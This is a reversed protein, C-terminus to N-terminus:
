EFGPPPSSVLVATALLVLVAVLLELRVSRRLPAVVGSERLAPGGRRWNWAGIGALFAVAVMKADLVLGYRSQWLAAWSGLHLWAGFLGSLVVLPAAILATRSFASVLNAAEPSGADHRIALSLGSALTMMSGIWVGAAIVHLADAAVAVGALRESGIAHGSLAPTIALVLSALAAVFWARGGAGRAAAFAIAAVLATALQALWVAGWTTHLALVQIQPLLPLTDDFLQALQIPLRCAALALAVVAGAAGLRASRADLVRGFTASEDGGQALRRLVLFHFAASGTTVLMAAFLGWRVVIGFLDPATM